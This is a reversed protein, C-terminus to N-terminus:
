FLEHARRLRQGPRALPADGSLTKWTVRMKTTVSTRVNAGKRLEAKWHFKM